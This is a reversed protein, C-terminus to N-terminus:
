SAESFQIHNPTTGGTQCDGESRAPVHQVVFKQKGVEIVITKGIPLQSLVAQYLPEDKGLSPSNGFSSFWLKGDWKEFPKWGFRVPKGNTRSYEVAECRLVVEGDFLKVMNKSASIFNTSNSASQMATEAADSFRISYLNKETPKEM